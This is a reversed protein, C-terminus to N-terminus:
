SYIKGDQPWFAGTGPKRWLWRVRIATWASRCKAVLAQDMLLIEHYEMGIVMGIVTPRNKRVAATIRERRM